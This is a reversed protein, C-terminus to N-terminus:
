LENKEWKKKRAPRKEVWGSIAFTGTLTRLNHAQFACAGAAFAGAPVDTKASPTINYSPWGQRLARMQTMQRDNYKPHFLM